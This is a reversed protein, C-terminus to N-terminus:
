MDFHRLQSGQDTITFALPKGYREATISSTLQALEALTIPSGGGLNLVEPWQEGTHEVLGLIIAAADRVDLFDLIQNRNGDITLHRGALAHAAMLHPAEGQDLRFVPAPGVLKALRLSIARISPMSARASHLLLESAYNMMGYLTVPAPPSNEAWPHPAMGYVAQSSTYIFQKVAWERALGVIAAMLELSEAVERPNNNRGKALHCIVDPTPLDLDGALLTPLTVWAIQGTARPPLPFLKLKTPDRVALTVRHRNSSTMLLPVLVTGLYGTAGTILIHAM